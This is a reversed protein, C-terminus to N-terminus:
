VGSLQEDICMLLKMRLHRLSSYVSHTTRNLEDAVRRVGHRGDYCQLLLDRQQDTLQEMCHALADRREVVLADEEKQIATLADILSDDLVARDRRRRISKLHELVKLRAVGCAWAGFCRDAQFQDYKAWLTVATEQFVDYADDPSHIVSLIYGYVRGYHRQMHDSFDQHRRSSDM